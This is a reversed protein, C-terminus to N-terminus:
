EPQSGQRKDHQRINERDPGGSGKMGPGKGYGSGMGCGVAPADYPCNGRSWNRDGVPEMMGPGRKGCGSPSRMMQPGRGCGRGSAGHLCNKPGRHHKGCLGMKGRHMMEPGMPGGGWFDRGLDPNIKRLRLIHELRQQAMQAKFDSIEKQIGSAAVADPDEKALESALELRKQYIKRRLDKTAEFFATREEDLKKIEDKGLNELDGCGPCGHGRHDWGQGKHMGGYHGCGRGRDASVYSGSFLIAFITILMIKLTKYNKNM